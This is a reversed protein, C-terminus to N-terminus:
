PTAMTSVPLPDLVAGAAATVQYLDFLKIKMYLLAGATHCLAVLYSRLVSSAGASTTTERHYLGKIHVIFLMVNVTQLDSVLM